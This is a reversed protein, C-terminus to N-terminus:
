EGIRVQKSIGGREDRRRLASILKMEERSFPAISEESRRDEM